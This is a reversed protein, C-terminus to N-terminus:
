PKEKPLVLSLEGFVVRFTMPLKGLYDGDIQVPVREGRLTFERGQLSLAAPPAPSRGTLLTAAAGLLGLRGPRLLLCVDLRDSRLSAQPTFSFKGAYCRCNGVIAGYGRYATGGEDVLEVPAPAGSFLARMGGLVYALKGTLRKLRLDVGYVVQADFGVGAMLLFRTEGAMGLCIPHAEGELAIACAKEVDFPIGTELAFVNTTGLPLFALPIPSPALGNVVENLTGDGGAAIVRDFGGVRAEAAASRADGRAGTLTLDVTCGQKELWARARDIRARANGGAVPNAILKIRRPPM